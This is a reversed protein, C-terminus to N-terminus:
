KKGEKMERFKEFFTKQKEKKHRKKILKSTLQGLYINDTLVRKSAELYSLGKRMLCKILYYKEQPNIKM